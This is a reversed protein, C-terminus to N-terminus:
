MKFNHNIVLDWQFEHFSLISKFFFFGNFNLGLGTHLQLKKLILIVLKIKGFFIPKIFIVVNSLDLPM